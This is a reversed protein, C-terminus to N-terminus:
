DLLGARKTVRGSDYIKKIIEKDIVKTFRPIQKGDVEKTGMFLSIERAFFDKDTEYLPVYGVKEQEDETDFGVGICMYLYSWFDNQDHKMHYYFEGYKPRDM